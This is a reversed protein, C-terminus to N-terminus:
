VKTFWLSIDEPTGYDFKRANVKYNNAKIDRNATNYRCTVEIFKSKDKRSDYYYSADSVLLYSSESQNNGERCRLTEEGIRQNGQEHSYFKIQM